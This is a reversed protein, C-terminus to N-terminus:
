KYFFRAFSVSIRAFHRSGFGALGTPKPNFVPSAESDEEHEDEDDDEFYFQFGLVLVLVLVIRRSRGVKIVSVPAAL